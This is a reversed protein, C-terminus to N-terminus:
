LESKKCLATEKCTIDQLFSQNQYLQQSNKVSKTKYIIM